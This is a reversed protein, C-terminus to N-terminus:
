GYKIGNYELQPLKDTPLLKQSVWSAILLRRTVYHLM